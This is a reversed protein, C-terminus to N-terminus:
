AVSSGRCFPFPKVEFAASATARSAPLALGEIGLIVELMKLSIVASVWRTRRKSSVSPSAAFSCSSFSLAWSSARCISISLKCWSMECRAPFSSMSLISRLNLCSNRISLDSRSSLCSLFASRMLLSIPFPTRTRRSWTFVILSAVCPIVALRSARSFFSSFFISSSMSSRSSRRRIWMASVMEFESSVSLASATACASFTAVSDTSTRASISASRLSCRASPALALPSWELRSEASARTFSVSRLKSSCPPKSSSMRFTAVGATVLSSSRSLRSIALKCSAKLSALCDASSSLAPNSSLNEWAVLSSRSSNSFSKLLFSSSAWSPSSRRLLAVPSWTDTNCASNSFARDSCSSAAASRARCSAAASRSSPSFRAPRPRSPAESSESCSSQAALNSPASARSPASSALPPSCAWPKASQRARSACSSFNVRPRSPSTVSVAECTPAACRATSRSLLSDRCCLCAISRPSHSRPSSSLRVNSSCRPARTPRSRLALFCTSILSSRLSLKLMKTVLSLKQSTISFRVCQCASRSALYQLSVSPAVLAEVAGLSLLSAESCRLPCAWRIALTIAACASAVTISSMTLNPFGLGSSAEVRAMCHSSFTSEERCSM